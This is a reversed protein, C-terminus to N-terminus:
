IKKAWISARFTSPGLPEPLPADTYNHYTKEPVLGANDLWECVQQLTPIYKHWPKPCIFTEGNATTLEWHGSGACIQTVPDYVSGYSMTKGFTGSEDTGCFYSNTSLTNFIRSPDSYLNFDLYLHGGPKLAASANQIFAKQADEYNLDSEINILLNGAMIVVDYDAGWDALAGDGQYVHINTLGNMRRRCRRLMYEDADFGTVQYGAEALPVCIRGGGCAAELIKLNKGETNSELVHLLFDVDETNNEFQEYVSAYWCGAIYNRDM